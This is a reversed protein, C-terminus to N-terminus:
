PLLRQEKAVAVAAARTDVALKDYIRRRAAAPLYEPSATGPRRRM